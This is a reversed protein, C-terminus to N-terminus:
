CEMINNQNLTCWLTEMFKLHLHKFFKQRPKKALGLLHFAGLFSTKSTQIPHDQYFAPSAPCSLNYIQDIDEYHYPYCIDHDVFEFNEENFLSVLKTKNGSSLNDLCVVKEGDDILRKCLNSRIFGAGGTVLVKKM